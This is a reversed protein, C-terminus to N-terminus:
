DLIETCATALGAVIKMMDRPSCDVVTRKLAGNSDVYDIAFRVVRLPRSAHVSVRGRDPFTMDMILKWEPSVEANRYPDTSV